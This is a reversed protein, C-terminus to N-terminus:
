STLDDPTPTSLGRRPHRRGRTPLRGTRGRGPRGPAPGGRREVCGPVARLDVPGRPRRRLEGGGDEPRGPRHGRQGRGAPGPHDGGRGRGGGPKLVPAPILVEWAAIDGEKVAAQKTVLSARDTILNDRDTQTAPDTSGDFDPKTELNTLAITDIAALDGRVKGKALAVKSEPNVQAAAPRAAALAALEDAPLPGITGGPTGVQAASALTALAATADNVANQALDALAQRAAQYALGTTSVAGALPEQATEAAALAAQATALSSAVAAQDAEFDARRNEFLAVMGSGIIAELATTASAVMPTVSAPAADALAATVAPAQVTNTWQAMLTDDAQAAVLDTAAGAQAAQAAALAGIAAQQARVAAAAADTAAGLSAQDIRTQILNAQLQTVLFAADSPLPAQALQTRLAANTTQDSTVQQTAAALGAQATAVDSNLQVLQTQLTTVAVDAQAKAEVRFDTVTAPPSMAVGLSTLIRRTPTRDAPAAFRPLEPRGQRVRTPGGPRPPAQHDALRRGRGPLRRGGGRQPDIGGPLAYRHPWTPAPRGVPGLPAAAPLHRRWLQEREAPTRCTSTVIFEIRRAFAPDLNQRLNTALVVLGDFREIRSLLYATELNAYRDRADGVETRSGFLADAEDFLLAAGATEAAEFIAALNKETEGIWKSVLRALDVVLLDRGLRHALVEAALTKGTGPPGCFLLRVGRRGARGALFGWQDIVTEPHALRQAAEVLQARPEDALVLDDWQARPHILVAGPPAQHAPHRDLARVLEDLVAPQRGPSRLRCPGAPGGPVRLTAAARLDVALEALDAPQVTAPGVPGTTAAVEPLAGVLARHRQPGDLLTLDLRLVPNPWARISASAGLSVLLPGRLDLGGLDVVEDPTEVLPARGALVGHLGIRLWEAPGSAPAARVAVVDHGATRALAALRASGAPQRDAALAVVLAEGRAVGEVAARTHADDLWQELGWAVDPLALSALGPIGAGEDRLASWVGPGPRIGSEWFPAQLDRGVLGHRVLPGDTLRQRVAARTASRSSGAAQGLLGLDALAGALGATAEPRGLPHLTRCVAALGEHEDPLGALVLLDVDLSDLGLRAVARDIPDTTATSPLDLVSGDVSAPGLTGAMARLFGAGVPDGPELQDVLVALRGALRRAAVHLRHPDPGPPRLPDRHNRGAREPRPSGAGAASLSPPLVLLERM